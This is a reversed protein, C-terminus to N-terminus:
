TNFINETDVELKLSRTMDAGLETTSPLDAKGAWVKAMALSLFETYTFTPIGVNINIFGLTPDDIYFTDLYLSRLHGGDTIIPQPTGHPVTDNLGISSNHYQPLFPFTYRYGTGFIIHDIGSINTGNILEVQGENFQSGIPLFWKIEPVLTVNKPLRNLYNRLDSGLVASKDPRVSQYM